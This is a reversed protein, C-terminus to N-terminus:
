WGQKYGKARFGSRRNLYHRQRSLESRFCGVSATSSLPAVICYGMRRYMVDCCVVDEALM